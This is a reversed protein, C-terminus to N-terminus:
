AHGEARVPPNVPFHAVDSEVDHVSRAAPPRVRILPGDQTGIRISGVEFHERRADAVKLLKREVLVAVQDADVVVAVMLPLEFPEDVDGFPGVASPSRVPLVAFVGVRFVIAVVDPHVFLHELRAELPLRRV